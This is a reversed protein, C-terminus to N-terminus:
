VSNRGTKTANVQVVCVREMTRDARVTVAGKKAAGVSTVWSPPVAYVPNVPRTWVRHVFHEMPRKRYVIQSRAPPVELIRTTIAPLANRALLDKTVLRVNVSVRVRSARVATVADVEVEVAFATPIVNRAPLVTRPLVVRTDGRYREASQDWAVM